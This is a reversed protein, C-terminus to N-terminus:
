RGRWKFTVSKGEPIEALKIEIKALALVDLSASMSSVFQTVVAKASYASAVAATGTLLYTFSKRADNSDANKSTPSKTSDRRYASFDPVNIDTHAWRVQFTVAPGSSVSVKGVPLTKSLSYGTLAVKQPKTVIRSATRGPPPPSKLNNSVVQSAAKFYTTLNAPKIM